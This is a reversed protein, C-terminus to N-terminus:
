AHELEGESAGAARRRRGQPARGQAALEGYLALYDRAMRRASFRQEFRARIAHRDLSDIRGLAAVAQDIDRVIFGTLGDEVIEHVSGAPFAVVPTGCAMAEIMVLGFPEPWAIPFLLACANALFPAKAAEDIEGIFEVLPEDLLPRVVEDFYDEDVRDVKAAIKLRIGCRQAIRIAQVPAKEPSIRGLFALYGGEGAGEGLLTDPLGHHVTGLWNAAPLFARQSASISVLPIDRFESFFPDLEPLDLRGHLTTLSPTPHGSFIPFHVLDTHFHIVDFAAAEDLVRRMMLLHHALPLQCTPDTRLSREACARLRASTQSGGAAFLTVDQGLGVLAETLYSVIRETGGYTGPPVSEILPAVQAIRMRDSANRGRPLKM